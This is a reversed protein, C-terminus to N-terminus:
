DGSAETAVKAILEWVTRIRFPKDVRAYPVREFFRSAELMFAGGTM